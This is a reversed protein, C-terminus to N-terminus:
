ASTRSVALTWKISRAGCRPAVAGPVATHRGAARINTIPVYLHDGSAVEAAHRLAEFLAEIRSDDSYVLADDLILPTPSALM